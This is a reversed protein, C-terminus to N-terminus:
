VESKTNRALERAYTDVLAQAAKVRSTEVVGSRRAHRNVRLEAAVAHKLQWSWGKRVRTAVRIRGQTVHTETTDKRVTGILVGDVRVEHLEAGDYDTKEAKTITVNM